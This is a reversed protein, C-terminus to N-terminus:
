EDQRLRHWHHGGSRSTQFAVQGVHDPRQIGAGWFSKSTQRLLNKRHVVFWVAKGKSSASETIHAAVVTKGFAPSAVGLISRNGMSLSRRLGTVFEQQDEFLTFPM